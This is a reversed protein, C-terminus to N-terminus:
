IAAGKEETKVILLRLEPHRRLYRLPLSSCGGAVTRVGAYACAGVVKRAAFLHLILPIAHPVHWAFVGITPTKHSGHAIRIAPALAEALRDGIGVDQLDSFRAAIFRAVRNPSRNERAKESTVTPPLRSPAPHRHGVTVRDHNRREPPLETYSRPRWSPARAIRFAHIM